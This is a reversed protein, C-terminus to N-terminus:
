DNQDKKSSNYANALSDSVELIIEQVEKIENLTRRVEPSDYFLPIELIESIKDHKADIKELSEELSDKINIIVLAFKVCFYTSTMLLLLLIAFLVTM